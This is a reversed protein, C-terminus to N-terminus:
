PLNKFFGVYVTFPAQKCNTFCTPMKNFLHSFLNCDEQSKCMYIIIYKGVFPLVEKAKESPEVTREREAGSYYLLILFYQLTQVLTCQWCSRRCKRM